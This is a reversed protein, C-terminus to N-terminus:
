KSSNNEELVAIAVDLDYMNLVKPGNGGYLKAAQAVAQYPLWGHKDWVEPHKADYLRFQIEGDYLRVYMKSHPNQPEPKYYVGHEDQM